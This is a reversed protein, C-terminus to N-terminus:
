VTLDEHFKNYIPPPDKSTLFSQDLFSHGIRVRALTVEQQKYNNIILLIKKKLIQKILSSTEGNIIIINIFSKYLNYFNTLKKQNLFTTNSNLVM